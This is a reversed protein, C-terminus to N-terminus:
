CLYDFLYKTSFFLFDSLLFIHNLRIKDFMQRIMCIHTECSMALLLENMYETNLDVSNNSSFVCDYM